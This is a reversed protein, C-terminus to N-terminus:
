EKPAMHSALTYRNKGKHKSVYMAKDALDILEELNDSDMPFYSIGISAGITVKGAALEISPKLANIIRAAFAEVASLSELETCIVSFEDGGLRAVTDSKRCTKLLINSVIVLLEDGAEHGLNDNVQKFGDLDIYLLGFQSSYRLCHEETMKLRDFFLTRNPLKTLPDFLAMVQLQAHYLKQKTVAIAIILSGVAILFFLGAGVFFFKMLNTKATSAINEASVFSVLHWHYTDNDIDGKGQEFAETPGTSSWYGEKKFPYITKFTYIGKSTTIQGQDLRNIAKWAAQDVIALTRQDDKFMFGWEQEHQPSLLWYGDTNLLMFQGESVPESEIIKDLLVKGYYNVLVIGRKEGSKDFIPTGLRIMPKFPEEIKGQEINLDFPSIYIEGNGLKFCDKFYYRQKKSQLEEATARVSLGQNENVRVKEMGNIDLFRIQNYIRKQKSTSIYEAGIKDFLEDDGTSLYENLENQQSLFLLDGTIGSFIDSVGRHQLDVAFQEKEKLNNLDTNTVSRYSALM